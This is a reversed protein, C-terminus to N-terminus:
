CCVDSLSLLFFLSHTDNVAIEVQYNWFLQVIVTLDTESHLVVAFQTLVSAPM